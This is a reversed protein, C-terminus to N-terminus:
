QFAAYRNTEDVLERLRPDPLLPVANLHATTKGANREPQSRCRAARLGPRYLNQVQETDDVVEPLPGNIELPEAEVLHWAGRLDDLLNGELGNHIWSRVLRPHTALEIDRGERRQSVLM